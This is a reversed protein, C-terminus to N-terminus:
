KIGFTSKLVAFICLFSIHSIRVCLWLFTLFIVLQMTKECGFNRSHFVHAHPALLHFWGSVIYSVCVSLSVYVIMSRYHNIHTRTWWDNLSWWNITSRMWVIGYSTPSLSLSFNFQSSIFDRMQSCIHAALVCVCVCRAFSIDM